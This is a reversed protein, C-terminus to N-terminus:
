FVPSHALRLALIEGSKSLKARASENIESLFKEYATAMDGEPASGEDAAAAM